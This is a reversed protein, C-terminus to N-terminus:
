SLIIEATGGNRPSEGTISFIFECHSVVLVTEEQRTRLDNLFLTGRDMLEDESEVVQLEDEMFDCPDVRHERVLASVELRDYTIRSAELTQRTRLLPSVVVLEYHGSLTAAHRLGEYTLPCDIALSTPDHNFESECHRLWTIHM